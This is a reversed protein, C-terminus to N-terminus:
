AGGFVNAWVLYLITVIAVLAIGGVVSWVIRDFLPMRSYDPPRYDNSM